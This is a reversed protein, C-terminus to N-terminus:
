LTHTHPPPPAGGGELEVAGALMLSWNISSKYNVQKGKVLQISLVKGVYRVM